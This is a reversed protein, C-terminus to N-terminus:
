RGGGADIALAKFQYHYKATQWLSPLFSDNVLRLTYGDHTARVPVKLTGNALVAADLVNAPDGFQRGEWEVQGFKGNDYTVEARYYGTQAHGFHVEMVQLSDVAKPGNDTRLYFESETRESSIRFGIYLEHGTADGQVIVTDGEVSVVPFPRGRPFGDPLNATRVVVIIKEPEEEAEPTEFPLVLTTQNEEADFAPEEALDTEVIRFDLRTHYLGGPDVLRPSVDLRLVAVGDERQVLLHAVAGTMGVWLITSEAPMRWKNWASQLREDPSLLMNYASLIAPEDDSVILVLGMTDSGTIFRPNAPIYQPIHATVDVEGVVRGDTLTLDRLTVFPGTDTAFYLSKGLALPACTETFEYTAALPAEVTDQSFRDQNSHIRFQARPAWLMTADGAEVAQRLLAIRRSGTVTIDVPDTALVTQATDRFFVYPNRAKSWVNSGETLIGLRSFSYHLDYIPKGIFSPDKSSAEDGVVRQGWPAAEFTFENLATNVLQWPMTDADLGVPVEPGLTEEWYGGTASNGVYEVFFNDEETGSEGRVEVLVGEFATRPLDTFSQVVGKIGIFHTGGLGDSTDIDFAAADGRSIRLVNGNIEVTFGLSTATTAGTVGTTAGVVAAGVGYPASGVNTGTATVTAASGTLARYFTAAIQNTSIHRRNAAASNDPTLYTWTYIKSNYIIALQYLTEYDGARFHLLAENAAAASETASMAPVVERNALFTFDDITVASFVDRPSGSVPTELYAKGEPFNVTCLAGTDLNIVRLDGDTVVVLYHEGDGRSIEYSFSAAFDEGALFSVLDAGPRARAGDLPSNICDFQAECQTDRRQQPAQQSVGQVMNPIAQSYLAM